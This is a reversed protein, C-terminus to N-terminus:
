KTPLSLESDDGPRPLYKPYILEDGFYTCTANVPDHTKLKLLMGWSLTYLRRLFSCWIVSLNRGLTELILGTVITDPLLFLPAHM